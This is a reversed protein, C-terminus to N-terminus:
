RACDQAAANPKPRSCPKPKALASVSAPNGRLSRAVAKNANLMPTSAPWIPTIASAITSVVPKALRRKGRLWHSALTGPKETPTRPAKQVM